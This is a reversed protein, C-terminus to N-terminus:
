QKILKVPKQNHENLCVFYLGASLLSLNVETYVNELTGSLLSRGTQDTIVYGLGIMTKDAYIACVETAPNPAVVFSTKNKLEQIGTENYVVLLAVVSTDSCTGDTVICRFTSNNDALGINFVVLTATNVGLFQTTNYLNLFGSGFNQQWQFISTSNSSVTTFQTFSGVSVTQSLPQVIFNPQPNVFAMVTLTNMCGNTDIGSVSYTTTTIPAFPVGNVVGSSWTYSYAGTGTLTLFEGACMTLSPLAMAVVTPLPNVSTSITGSTVCGNADAGTVIYTASSFVSFPVSNSVGGSWSYTSAGTGTLTLLEGACMTLSPLAMAGVTPLPNVTTSITESTVCGNTDAGTVIYTASSFVSFPVGDSVGSSWSYTSAGTGSLNLFSGSCLTPSPLAVAGVLPLPNVKIVVSDATQCGNGSIGNVGYYATATPSFPVGSALGGSWVYTSAGTALLSVSSGLCISFSPSATISLIPSAGVNIAFASSAPSPGSVSVTITGSGVNCIIAISSTNAVSNLVMGPSLTWSYTNAPDSPVSYTGTATGNTSCLFAPGHITYPNAVGKLKLVFYGGSSALSYTGATPDIDNSNYYIGCACVASDDVVVSRAEGGGMTGAWVFSGNQDLESIFSSWSSTSSASLLYSASGPDFDVAVSGNFDRSYLCEGM